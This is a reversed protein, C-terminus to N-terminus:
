DTDERRAAGLTRRLGRVLAAREAATLRAHAHMLAYVRVPMQGHHVADAARAAEAQPRNWQSFNLADRGAEVDRQVLWSVPAVRTYGPWATENSHCDFCARRVLTRTETSDWMPEMVVPPNM